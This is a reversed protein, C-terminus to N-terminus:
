NNVIQGPTVGLLKKCHRNLHSQNAFGVILAVQSISYKRTLLLERARNVRTQIVYQHPTMGMSNKFLHCFYHPSMHLLNSLEKLSLDRDLNSSIYETIQHLNVKSLGHPYKKIIPKRASYNQLLHVVLANIMTEAYLRSGSPNNQIVNKIALGIHLVLPDPTAFHPILQFQEPEGSEDIARAFTTTEISLLIFDGEKNWSAKQGIHAPTIVIDGGIVSDRQFREDLTRDAHIVYNGHTFIALSHALPTSVEPTEYAPQFMYRFSAGDWGTHQSTLIPSRPFLQNIEDEKTLVLPKDESM